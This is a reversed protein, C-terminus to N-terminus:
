KIIDELKVSVLKSVGSEQMTIGYLVDVYEMTKKKHTILIFQTKEKLKNIYEGFSSVNVEDLAAEVEDLICFPVERSKLIAFLLSIATFTKEGGSLLSITTLKKGPPSAIIEIGTTLINSEDCLRLDAFGGKFLERFTENFKSKILNFTKLFDNEMVEDLEKIINLLINEANVLDDRQKILFEYRESVKNYEIPANLNVPGLDKIKNKLVNVRNRSVDEEDVLIYESKAKEYTISYNENLSNLLMDIKVDYRNLEIELNKLEKNKTNYLTNDKLREHEFEELEENLKNKKDQLINLENQTQEKKSLESYYSNIIKEEEISVTKNLVSNTGSINNTTVTLEEKSDILRTDTNEILTNIEIKEKNALYLEDEKSKFKYDFENLLNELTKIENIKNEYEKIYNELEYKITIINSTKNFGGTISGGVHLVEGNLTVIKYRHNIIKSIRNANDINDVVIVNGLINSVINSYLSNYKILNSAIEIFGIENNLTNKTDIDIEKPKLTDLPLFTVRGIKEDNLYKIATKACESNDVVINSSSAGLATSIALSYVNEVEILNGLINHMGKLNHNNLVQKVPLPLLSNNEINDNLSDIKYKLSNNNKVLISLKNEVEQKESKIKKLIEELENINKNIEILKDNYLNLENELKLISNKLKLEKEKLQILSDHLKIDDVEYKKREVIIEKQSNIKEVNTTLKILEKQKENIEDELKSLDLKYKTIKTTSTLNSNNITTLEHSIDDIKAKTNILKENLNTIDHTMLAIETKELEENYEEYKLATDRQRKLPEVQIALENIIDEARTMNDHTKDLKRLADEKRKKYKLVGAAEEFIIRRDTPKTSLIEEIKGQSIINFSEKAIGSDLLIDVVDKLRCKENNLYFENTGDNYLKRKISITDNDIKLYRDKNDFVLTVSASGAANRSKSGSFIVDTMSNDGRLSKVSQEGLVWRVADVINSKGSGNPGVIGNTGKSLEIKIDDAFSKFGHARIEKLYM